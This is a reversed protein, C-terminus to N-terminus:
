VVTGANTLLLGGVKKQLKLRKKDKTLKNENLKLASKLIIAATPTEPLSIAHM